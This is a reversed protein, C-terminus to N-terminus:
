NGSKLSLCSKVISTLYCSNENKDNGNRISLKTINKWDNEISQLLRDHFSSTPPILGIFDCELATLQKMDCCQFLVVLMQEIM